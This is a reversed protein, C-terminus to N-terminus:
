ALFNTTQQRAETAFFPRWHVLSRMREAKDVNVRKGGTLVKTTQERTQKYQLCYPGLDSQERTQDPNM